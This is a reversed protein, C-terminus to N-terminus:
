KPQIDFLSCKIEIYLNDSNAFEAIGVEIRVIFYSYYLFKLM